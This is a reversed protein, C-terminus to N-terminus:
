SEEPEHVLDIFHNFSDALLEIEQCEHDWFHVRGREPGSVKLCIGNGCSDGMIWIMTKPIWDRYTKFHWPLSFYSENRFGGIHHIDVSTEGGSPTPGTFLV